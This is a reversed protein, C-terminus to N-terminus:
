SRVLSEGEIKTPYVPMWDDEKTFDIRSAYKGLTPSIDICYDLFGTNSNIFDTFNLEFLDERDQRVESNTYISFKAKKMLIEGINTAALGYIKKIKRSDNESIKDLYKLLCFLICIRAIRNGSEGAVVSIYCHNNTPTEAGQASLITKYKLDKETLVGDTFKDFSLKGMFLIIFYGVTIGNGDTMKRFSNNDKEYWSQYVSLPLHDQADFFTRGFGHLKKIEEKTVKQLQFKSKGALDILPSPKSKLIVQSGLEANLESILDREYTYFLIVLHVRHTQPDANKLYDKFDEYLCTYHSHVSNIRNKTKTFLEDAIQQTSYGMLLRDLVKRRLDPLKDNYISLIEDDM